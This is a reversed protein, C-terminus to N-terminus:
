VEDGNWNGKMKPGTPGEEGYVENPLVKVLKEFAGKLNGKLLSEIKKVEDGLTYSIKPGWERTYNLWPPEIIELNEAAVISYSEGCDLVLNSKATDNRIGIDVAGQLVLGAKPFIAHGNLSSYAVVKNSDKQFELSPADLWTGGSHESFYAKHLVGNFNSIRLTVHEWDGIHEGIKGLPVDILGLKATGPGNFPHFIWVAIDTFTAGLMPKIHLYVESNPLDGKIAKEKDKEDIPLDLWYAGDNPGGQPLNSGNPEIPSPNSEQGKQYILAGNAFHWNVSSPLYKEKPHFYILPSYQEFLTQIQSLNPMSSFTGFKNNKLCTLSLTSNSDDDKDSTIRALFTGVSVGQAKIGRERPRISHINIGNANSTTGQGWIWNEVELGDTLDSRVCQIKDLSPKEPSATVVHGLAKYDEPPTPLWIYGHHISNKNKFRSSESSWVLTYDVPNKLIEGANDKGVLVWGFLPQNNPQCYCGFMSFGDPIPSPEYFTAGLNDPGGKDTAWVKNFTVIQCVELGGLDVHGSGFDGTGPPWKPLPSPLKFITDIPLSKTEKDLSPICNGM